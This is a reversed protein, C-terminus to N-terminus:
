RCTSIHARPFEACNKLRGFRIKSPVVIQRAIQRGRIPNCLPQAVCQAIVCQHTELGREMAGIQRGHALDGRSESLASGVIIAVWDHSPEVFPQPNTNAEIIQGIWDHGGAQQQAVAIAPPLNLCILLRQPLCQIRADNRRDVCSLIERFGPNLWRM